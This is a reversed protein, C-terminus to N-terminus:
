GFIKRLNEKWTALRKKRTYKKAIKKDKEAKKQNPNRIENVMEEGMGDLLKKEFIAKEAEQKMAGQKIDQAIGKVEQGMLFDM